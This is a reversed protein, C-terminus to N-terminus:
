INEPASFFVYKGHVHPCFIKWGKRKKVSDLSDTLSTYTFNLRWQDGYNLEGDQDLLENFIDMWLGPVWEAPTPSLYILNIQPDKPLLRSDKFVFLSVCVCVCVCGEKM